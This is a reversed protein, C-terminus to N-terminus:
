LGSKTSYRFLTKIGFKFATHQYSFLRAKSLLLTKYMFKNDIM